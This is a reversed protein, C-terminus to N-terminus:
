TPSRRRTSPASPKSGVTSSRKSSAKWWAVSTTRLRSGRWRSSSPGYRSDTRPWSSSKRRHPWGVWDIARRTCMSSRHSARGRREHFPSLDGNRDESVPSFHKKFRAETAAWDAITLPMEMTTENGDADRYKLEYEPWVDQISPNGDLSLRGSLTKGEAPDYTLIPYARTELALKAAETAADDGLGHEPPCPSHLMFVAPYHSQLGRLVGGLLHSPAAQSSQLVYVNRHAMAILSLEKRTEEKGHQGKGFAAMDSVQGLFGSTCAQGGTNSYVQTDLVVVRIPKGSALLRSLNQFGIDLMAGDGGLAIIPPCMEFEDQSFQRWEFHTFQSEHAAPDYDDALELEARRVAVFGDAMKRMNAFPYPNYPYTSAWVSSCGTANTMGVTARGKGSPGETYRWQLDKLDRLMRSIREVTAKKEGELPVDVGGELIGAMRDLDVDSALIGRAKTDLRAILDDLRQVYRDVRPLM